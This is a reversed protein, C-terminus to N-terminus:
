LTRSNSALRTRRRRCLGPGSATLRFRRLNGRAARHLSNIASARSGRLNTDAHPRPPTGCDRHHGCRASLPARDDRTCQARAQAREMPGIRRRTYSPDYFRPRLSTCRSDRDDRLRRRDTGSNRVHADCLPDPHHPGGYTPSRLRQRCPQTPGYEPRDCTCPGMVAGSCDTPGITHRPRGVIEGDRAVVRRHRTPRHRRRHHRTPTDRSDSVITTHPCPQTELRLLHGRAGSPAFTYRGEGDRIAVPRPRELARRGVRPEAQGRRRGAARKRRRAQASADLPRARGQPPPDRHAPRSRTRHARM